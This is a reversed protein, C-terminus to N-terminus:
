RCLILSHGLFTLEEQLASLLAYLMWLTTSPVIVVVELKEPKRSTAVMRVYCAQRCAHMRTHIHTQMHTSVLVRFNNKIGVKEELGAYAM